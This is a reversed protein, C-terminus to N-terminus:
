ATTVPYAGAAAKDLAAGLKEELSDLYADPTWGLRQGNCRLEVGWTMSPAREFAITALAGLRDEIAKQICIRTGVPLDERSFVTMGDVAFPRLVAPDLTQLKEIFASMACRQVDASALDHLARRSAALIETAASRRVEDFFSGKERELEAHWKTELTKVDERAQALIEGRQRDADDRAAALIGAKQSAMESAEKALQEAQATAEHEKRTAEAVRGSISKERADMAAVLPGYLFRKMLWVLVLFNVIQAVVTFWDILVFLRRSWM